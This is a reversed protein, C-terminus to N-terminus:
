QNSQLHQLEVKALDAAASGPYNKLVEKFLEQAKAKQGLNVYCQGEAALAHPVRAHTSYTTRFQEFQQVAENFSKMQQSSKAKWFAANATNEANPNAKIYSDFQQAAVAYNRSAYSNQAQEFTAAKDSSPTAPTAPAAPPQPAETPTPSAPAPPAPPASSDTASPAPTGKAADDTPLTPIVAPAVNATYTRNLRKIISDLTADVKDLRKTNDEMTTQLMKVNQDVADSRASLDVSTQNLKEVSGQLNKDLRAVISHTSYITNEFQSGGSVCGLLSVALLPVSLTGLLTFRM